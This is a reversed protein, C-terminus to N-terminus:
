VSLATRDALQGRRLLGVGLQGIGGLSIEKRDKTVAAIETGVLRGTVAWFDRGGLHQAPNICAIASPAWTSVNGFLFFSLRGNAAPFRM